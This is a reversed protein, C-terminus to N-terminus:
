GGSRYGAPLFRGFGTSKGLDPELNGNTVAPRGNILVHKVCGPVRNVMRELGFNEMEAWEVSELNQNLGKPDLLTIDARDGDAKDWKLGKEQKQNVSQCILKAKPAIM